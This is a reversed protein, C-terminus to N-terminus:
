LSFRFFFFYCLLVFHPGSNSSAKLITSSAPAAPLRTMIIIIIIIITIILIMMTAVLDIQKNIKSWKSLSCGGFQFCASTLHVRRCVVQMFGFSVVDFGSVTCTCHVHVTEPNLSAPTFLSQIDRASGGARTKRKRKGNPHCTCEIPEVLRTWWGAVARYGRNQLHSYDVYISQKPDCPAVPSLSDHM